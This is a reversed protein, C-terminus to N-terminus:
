KLCTLCSGDYIQTYFLLLEPTTPDGHVRAVGHRAIGNVQTFYGGLLIKGDAQLAISEVSDDPGAAVDFCIDLAGDSHFRAMHPRLMGNLHDFDGAVVVRGDPQIALSEVQLNTGPDPDFSGDLSGDTNLRAV